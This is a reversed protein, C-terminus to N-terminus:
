SLWQLVPLESEIESYGLPMPRTNAQVQALISYLEAWTADRANVCYQGESKFKPVTSTAYTCASLIGDYNRTNAFADLREQTGAIIGLMTSENQAQLEETSLQETSWNRIVTRDNVEYTWSEKLKHGDPIAPINDQITYVNFQVMQEPTLTEAPQYVSPSFHINGVLETLVGLKYQGLM